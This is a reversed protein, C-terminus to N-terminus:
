PDLPPMESVPIAATDRSAADHGVQLWTVYGGTGDERAPRWGEDPGDNFYELLVAAAKLHLRDLDGCMHGPAYTFWGDSGDAILCACAGHPDLAPPWEAVGEGRSIKTALARVEADDLSKM